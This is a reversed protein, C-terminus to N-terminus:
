YTTAGSRVGARAEAPTMLEGLVVILVIAITWRVVAGAVRRAVARRATPLAPALAAAAEQTLVAM